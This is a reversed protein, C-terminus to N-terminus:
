LKLYKSKSIDLGSLIVCTQPRTLSSNNEVTDISTQVSRGRLKGYLLCPSRSCIHQTVGTIYRSVLMSLVHIFTKLFWVGIRTRLTVLIYHYQDMKWLARIFIINLLYNIRVPWIVFLRIVCLHLVGLIDCSCCACM